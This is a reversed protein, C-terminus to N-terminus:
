HSGKKLSKTWENGPGVVVKAEPGPTLAVVGRSADIYVVLTSMDSYSANFGRSLYTDGSDDWILAPWKRMATDVPRSLKLERVVGIAARSRKRNWPGERVIEYDAGALMANLPASAAMHRDAQARVTAELQGNM